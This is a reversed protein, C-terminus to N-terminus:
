EVVRERAVCWWVIGVVNYVSRRMRDIMDRCAGEEIEDLAERPVDVFGHATGEAYPAAAAAMRTLQPAAPRLTGTVVLPMPQSKM